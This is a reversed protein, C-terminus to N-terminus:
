PKAKLALVADLCARASGDFLDVGTVADTAEDLRLREHASM